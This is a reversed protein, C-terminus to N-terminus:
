KVGGAHRAIHEPLVSIGEGTAIALRGLITVGNVKIRAVPSAENSVM